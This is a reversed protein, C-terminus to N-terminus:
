NLRGWEDLYYGVLAQTSLQNIETPLRAMDEPFHFLAQLLDADLYKMEGPLPAPPRRGNKTGLVYGWDGFSPLYVHYPYTRFGASELTAVVCWFARRALEPSTSQVALAGEDSLTQRVIRYFHRSYLKGLAYTSPDPFDLLVVDFGRPLEPFAVMADRNVVRVRPDSLAGRNLKTLVPHTSALTTVAPDLDVLVVEEVSPWKLVERVALGDGGGGILVRRPKEVSAMAPHVLAEHYRHEDLSSFQLHGNLYFDHGGPRSVLALRQYPSSKASVVEGGLTANEAFHTIRDAEVLALTLLAFVVVSQVRALRMQNKNTGKRDGLLLTAGFAAAANLLGCVLSARVLGLKPVLFLSFGLSGLLAGAYDFTLAKAILDKFVFERELIRILLPLELGVLVGVLVVTTYLILQFSASFAFAVFLLPASFGGVLAAGLEVNVFCLELKSDVARSIYAGLGLASLYVGIIISFQRVSDGLVYSAVAAIALEYVLGATAIILVLGLLAHPLWRSKLDTAGSAAGRGFSGAPDSSAEPTPKQGASAGSPPQSSSASAM